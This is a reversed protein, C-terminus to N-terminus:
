IESRVVGFKSFFRNKRHINHNLPLPDFCASRTFSFEPRGHRVAGHVDAFAEFELIEPRDCFEPPFSNPQAVPQVVQDPLIAAGSRSELKMLMAEEPGTGIM